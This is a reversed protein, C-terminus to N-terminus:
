TPSGHPETTPQPAAPLRLTFTSGEGPLSWVTIQGGHNVAVHKAISLGLGTGGTSRSRAPDVRYFREFIRETDAAGIGIGQDSVSIEVLQNGDQDNERVAVNVRTADPSYNVANEVLNGLATALQTTDGIVRLGTSGGLILDIGRAQAIARSRDVAEATVDDVDVETATRLPDDGQVRSLDLIDQVLNTLRTAENTMRGAFRRVAEPDDNADLVAEALLSLAGVPTKLEHSVNAVFDRRIAEVRHAETRDEVLVLVFRGALAAVRTLVAMGPRGPANPELELETERTLGDRRVQHTLARLQASILTNGQVLGATRAAVSAKVVQDTEDLVVASSRLVSLVDAVGGPLAPRDTSSTTNRRNRDREIWRLALVSSAGTVLGFGLGATFLADM